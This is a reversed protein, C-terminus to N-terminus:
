CRSIWITPGSGSPPPGSRGAAHEHLLIHANGFYRAIEDFAGRDKISFREGEGVPHEEIEAPRALPDPLPRGLQRRVDDELWHYAQDLTRGSLPLELQEVDHDSLILLHLDKPRLACRFPQSAEVIGTAMCEHGPIWSFASHSDDPAKEILTKGVSSAIQAAWHIQRRADVLGEEPSAALPQWPGNEPTSTAM